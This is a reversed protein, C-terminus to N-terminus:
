SSSGISGSISAKAGAFADNATKGGRVADLEGITLAHNNPRPMKTKTTNMEIEQKELLSWERRM